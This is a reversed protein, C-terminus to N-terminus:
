NSCLLVINQQLLIDEMMGQAEERINVMGGDSRLGREWTVIRNNNMQTRKNRGTIRAQPTILVATLGTGESVGVTVLVGVTVGVVVKVGIGVNVGVGVSIGATHPPGREM